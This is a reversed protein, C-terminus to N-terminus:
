QSGGRRRVIAGMEDSIRMRDHVAERIHHGIRMGFEMKSKVIEINVNFHSALKIAGSSAHQTSVIVTKIGLDTVAEAIDSGRAALVLIESVGIRKQWRKCEILYLEKAGRLSVDIQHSYGSAGRLRNRNGSRCDLDRLEPAAEIISRAIDAALQEYEAPTM